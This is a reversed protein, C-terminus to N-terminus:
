QSSNQENRGDRWRGGTREWNKLEIKIREAIEKARRSGIKTAELIVDIPLPNGGAKELLVLESSPTIVLSLLSSSLHLELPTPDLLILNNNSKSIENAGNGTGDILMSTDEDEDEDEDQNRKSTSTSNSSTVDFCVLSIGIPWYRM